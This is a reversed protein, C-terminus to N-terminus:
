RRRRTTKRAAKRVVRRKVSQVRKRPAAKKVMRVDVTGNSNIRVADAKIFKGVPISPNSKKVPKRKAAKRKAPKRRKKAYGHEDVGFEGALEPDYDSAGRIPHFVGGSVYGETNRLIKIKAM